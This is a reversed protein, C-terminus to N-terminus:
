DQVFKPAPLALIMCVLFAVILVVGLVAEWNWHARWWPQPKGVARMVTASDACFGRPTLYGQAELRTENVTVMEPDISVTVLTGAVDASVWAPAHVARNVFQMGVGDLARLM